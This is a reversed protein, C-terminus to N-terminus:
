RSFRRTQSSAPLLVRNGGFRAQTTFKKSGSRSVTIRKTVECDRNIRLQSNDIVKGGRKTVLTISGGTCGQAATVREPLRVEATITKTV